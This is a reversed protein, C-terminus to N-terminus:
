DEVFLCSRTCESDYFESDYVSGQGHLDSTSTVTKKTQILLTSM